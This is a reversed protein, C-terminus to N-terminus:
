KKITSNFSPQGECGLVGTCIIVIPQCYPSQDGCLTMMMNNILHHTHASRNQTCEARRPINQEAVGHEGQQIELVPACLPVGAAKTCSMQKAKYM